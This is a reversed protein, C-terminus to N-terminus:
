MIAVNEEHQRFIHKIKTNINYTSNYVKLNM